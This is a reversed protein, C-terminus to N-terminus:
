LILMSNVLYRVLSLEALYVRRRAACAFAASERADKAAFSAYGLTAHRRGHDRGGVEVVADDAPVAGAVRGERQVEVRAPFPDNHRAQTEDRQERRERRRDQGRGDVGDARVKVGGVGRLRGEGDADEQQSVGDSRQEQRRQRFDVSAGDDQRARVREEADPMDAARQGRAEIRQDNEPKEAANAPGAAHRKSAGDYPIEERSDLAALRQRQPTYPRNNSRRQARQDAGEDHSRDAPAPIRPDDEDRRRNDSSRQSEIKGLSAVLDEDIAFHRSQTSFKLPIIEHIAIIRRPRCLERPSSEQHQSKRSRQLHEDQRRKNKKQGNDNRKIIARTLIVEM